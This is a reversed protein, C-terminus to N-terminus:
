KKIENMPFQLINNERSEAKRVDCIENYTYLAKHMNECIKDITEPSPEYGKRAEFRLIFDQEFILMFDEIEKTTMKRTLTM